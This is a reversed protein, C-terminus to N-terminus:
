SDIVSIEQQGTSLSKFCSSIRLAHYASLFYIFRLNSQSPLIENAPMVSSICTLFGRIYTLYTEVNYLNVGWMIQINAIAYFAISTYIHLGLLPNEINILKHYVSNNRIARLVNETESYFSFSSRTCFKSFDFNLILGNM